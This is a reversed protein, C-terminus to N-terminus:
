HIYTPQIKKSEINDVEHNRYETRYIARTAALLALMLGLKYWTKEIGGIMLDQALLSLGGSGLFLENIFNHLTHAVTPVWINRSRWYMYGYTIGGFFWSLMSYMEMGKIPVHLLAFLIATILIAAWPRLNALKTMFYARALLEEHFAAFAKAILAFGLFGAISVDFPRFHLSQGSMRTVIWTFAFCLVFTIVAVILLLATEEKRWHFGFRGIPTREIYRIALILIAIVLLAVVLELLLTVPSPYNEKIYDLLDMQIFFFMCGFIAAYAAVAAILMQLIRKFQEKM